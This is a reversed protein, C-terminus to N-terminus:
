GPRRERARRLAAEVADGAAIAPDAVFRLTPTRKLRAEVGVAHQLERRHEELAAAASEALTGVYVVARALGPETEVGTLTLM